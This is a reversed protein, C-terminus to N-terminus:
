FIDYKIVLNNVHTCNSHKAEFYVRNAAEPAMWMFSKM